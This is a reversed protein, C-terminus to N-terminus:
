KKKRKPLRQKNKKDQTDRLQEAVMRQYRMYERIRGLARLEEVSLPRSVDEQSSRRLLEVGAEGMIHRAVEELSQQFREHRNISLSDPIPRAIMINEMFRLYGGLAPNYGAAIDKERAIKEEIVGEDIREREEIERRMEETLVYDRFGQQELIEREREVEQRRRELERRREEALRQNRSRALRMQEILPATTIGGSIYSQALEPNDLAREAAVHAIAKKNTFNLRLFSEAGSRDFENNDRFLSYAMQDATGVPQNNGLDFEELEAEWQKERGYAAEELSEHTILGRDIYQQALEPNDLARKEAEQKILEVAQICTEIHSPNIKVEEPVKPANDIVIDNSPVKPADDIVIDSWTKRKSKKGMCIFM